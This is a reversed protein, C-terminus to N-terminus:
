KEVSWVCVTGDDSASAWEPTTLKDTESCSPRWDVCNVSKKHAFFSAVVNGQPAWLWVDGNRAGSIVLSPSNGGACGRHVYNKSDTTYDNNPTIPAMYFFTEIHPLIPTATNSGTNILILTHQNLNVLLHGGSGWKPAASIALPQQPLQLKYREEFSPLLIEVLENETNLAWITSDDILIFDEVEHPLFHEIVVTPNSTNVIFMGVDNSSIIISHSTTYDPTFAAATLRSTRMYGLGKTERDITFICKKEQMSWIQLTQSSLTLFFASDSSWSIYTTPELDVRFSAAISYNDNADFVTLSMLKPGTALYRGNPSYKLFWIESDLQLKCKLSTPLKTKYLCPNFLQRYTLADSITRELADNPIYKTSLRMLNELLLTRADDITKIQDNWHVTSLLISSPKSTPVLLSTLNQRTAIDTNQPLKNLLQLAADTDKRIYLTELYKITNITSDVSEQTISPDYTNLINTIEVIPINDSNILQAIANKTNIFTKSQSSFEPLAVISDAIENHGKNYLYNAIETLPDM